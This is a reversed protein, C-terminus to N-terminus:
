PGSCNRHKIEAFWAAVGGEPKADASPVQAHQDHGAPPFSAPTDCAAALLAVGYFGVRLCHWDSKM